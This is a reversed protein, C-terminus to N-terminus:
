YISVILFYTAKTQFMQMFANQADNTKLEDFETQLANFVIQQIQSNGSQLDTKPINRLLSELAFAYKKAM